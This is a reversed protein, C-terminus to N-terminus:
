GPEMVPHQSAEGHGQSYVGVGLGKLEMSTLIFFAKMTHLLAKLTSM